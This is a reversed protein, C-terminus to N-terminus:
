VANNLNGKMKAEFMKEFIKEIDELTLSNRKAEGREEWWRQVVPLAFVVGIVGIFAIVLYFLVDFRKEVGDIRNSLAVYVGDVKTELKSVRTEIGALRADINELKSDIKNLQEFVKDFKSDINKMYAEFLDKRVYVDENEAGFSCSCSAIFIMFALFIQRM